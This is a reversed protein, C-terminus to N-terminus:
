LKSGESECIAGLHHPFLHLGLPKDPFALHKLIAHHGDADKLLVMQLQVNSPVQAKLGFPPPLLQLDKKEIAEKYLRGLEHFDIASQYGTVVDFIHVTPNASTDLDERPFSLWDFSGRPLDPTVMPSTQRMSLGETIQKLDDFTLNEAEVAM